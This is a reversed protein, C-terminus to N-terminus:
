EIRIAISAEFEKSGEYQIDIGTKEEFATVSENFKVADNDVFPGAMTVVKGRVGAYMDGSASMAEGADKKKCGNIFALVIILSFVILLRSKKM